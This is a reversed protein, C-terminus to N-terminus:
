EPIAASSQGGPQQPELLRERIRALQSPTVALRSHLYSEISGHDARIQDFAAHLYQPDATLLPARVERSIGALHAHENGVGISGRRHRFLEHELDVATNTLAYDAVIDDNGVGLSALILAAALGTRDKGASCNFVLPIEGAALEAFLAAFQQEFREPFRRYLAIMAGTTDRPSGIGHVALFSRLSIESSDYDWHLSRMGQPQWRNPERKREDATRLDCVVRIGLGTLHAQDADTLYSLVGSRYLTRWRVSRGDRTAYGGLDRFNRGGQLSLLREM